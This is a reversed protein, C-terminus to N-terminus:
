SGVADSSSVSSRRRAEYRSLWPPKSGAPLAPGWGARRSAARRTAAQATLKGCSRAWIQVPSGRSVAAFGLADARARRVGAVLPSQDDQRALRSGRRRSSCPRHRRWPAASGHPGHPDRRCPPCADAQAAPLESEALSASGLCTEPRFRFRAHATRHITRIGHRPRRLRRPLSSVRPNQTRRATSM